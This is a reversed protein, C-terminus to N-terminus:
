FTTYKIHYENLISMVRLWLENDLSTVPKTEMIAKLIAIAQDSTEARLLSPIDNRFRGICDSLFDDTSVVSSRRLLPVIFLM